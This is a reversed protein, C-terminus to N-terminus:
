LGAEVWTAACERPPNSGIRPMKRAYHTNPRQLSQWAQRPPPPITLDQEVTYLLFSECLMWRHLGPFLGNLERHMAATTSLGNQGLAHARGAVCQPTLILLVETAQPFRHQFPVAIAAPHAIRWSCALAAHDNVM